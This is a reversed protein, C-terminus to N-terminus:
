LHNMSAGGLAASSASFDTSYTRRRYEPTPNNFITYMDYRAHGVATLAEAYFFCSTLKRALKADTEDHEKEEVKTAIVTSISKM